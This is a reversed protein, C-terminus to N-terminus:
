GEDAPALVLVRDRGGLDRVRARCAFGCDDFLRIVAAHQDFGTELVLQGGSRLHGAAGRAIARYADLGDAGGDLAWRPDFNRVEPELGAIEGSPIYPPNSVILDFTGSVAAFWDSEVTEFRDALGLRGANLRATRLAVASIDTAVGTAAGVGTLLALGIAGSGTGLDLISCGGTRAVAERALPLATEVLTETDPRPELTAESLRIDLGFFGRAGLIRHVPEGCCRRNAAASIRAEDDDSVPRDAHVILATLDLGLLGGTLIRADEAPSAVGHETFQRKLREIVAGVTPATDPHDM